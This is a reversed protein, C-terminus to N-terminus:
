EPEFFGEPAWKRGLAELFTVYSMNRGEPGTKSVPYKGQMKFLMAELAEFSTGEIRSNIIVHDSVQAHIIYTM